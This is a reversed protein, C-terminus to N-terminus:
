NSSKNILPNSWYMDILYNYFFLFGKNIFSNILIGNLYIEVTENEAHSCVILSCTFPYDILAQECTMDM